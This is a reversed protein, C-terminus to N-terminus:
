YEEARFQGACFKPTALLRFFQLSHSSLECSTGKCVDLVVGDAKDQKFPHHLECQQAQLLDDRSCQGLIDIRERRTCSQLLIRRFGAMQKMQM